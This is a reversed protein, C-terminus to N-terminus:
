EIIRGATDITVWLGPIRLILYSPNIESEPAFIDANRQLPEAVLNDGSILKGVKNMLLPRGGDNERTLDEVFALSGNFDGVVEMLYLPFIERIRQLSDAANVPTKGEEDKLDPMRTFLPIEEVGTSSVFSWSNNKRVAARGSSFNRVEDFQPRIVEIGNADIFGWGASTKVASYGESFRVVDSYKAETIEKGRNNVLAFRVSGDIQPVRGFVLGGKSFILEDYRPEISEEGQINLFGWLSGKRFAASYGYFPLVEDYAPLELTDAKHAIQWRNPLRVTTTGNEFGPGVEAFQCPIIEVGKSDVFGWNGARMVPALGEKFLGIESYNPPIVTEGDLTILGKLGNQQILYHREDFRYIEEYRPQIRIKGTNDIVGAENNKLFVAIGNQFNDLFDFQPAVIEKGNSNIFGFGKDSNVISFGERLDFVQQYNGEIAQISGNTNVYAWRALGRVVAKGQSFSYAEEFRPEIVWKGKKDIFGWLQSKGDQVAALGESFDRAQTYRYRICPEGLLSHYGFRQTRTDFVRIMEESPPEPILHFPFDLLLYGGKTVLQYRIAFIRAADIWERKRALTITDTNFDWIYLYDAPIVVEGSLKRFGELVITEGNPDSVERQFKILANPDQAFTLKASLLFLVTLVGIISYRGNHNITFSIPKHVIRQGAMPSTHRNTSRATKAFNM